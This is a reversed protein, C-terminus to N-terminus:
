NLPFIILIGSFAPWRFASPGVNFEPKTAKHNKLPGLGTNSLFDLNNHNKLPPQGSGRGGEPDAWGCRKQHTLAKLIPFIQPRGCFSM